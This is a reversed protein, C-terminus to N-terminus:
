KVWRAGDVMVGGARWLGALGAAPGRRTLVVARAPGRQGARGAGRRGAAGGPSRRRLYPGSPLQSSQAPDTPAPTPWLDMWTLRQLAPWSPACTCTTRPPRAASSGSWRSCARTSGAIVIARAVPRARGRWSTTSIGARARGPRRRPRLLENRGAAVSVPHSLRMAIEGRPVAKSPKSRACWRAGSLCTGQPSGRAQSRRGPTPSGTRGLGPSSESGDPVCNM